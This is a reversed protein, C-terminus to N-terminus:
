IKNVTKAGVVLVFGFGQVHTRNTTNNRWYGIAFRLKTAVLVFNFFLSRPPEYKISQAKTGVVLVFVLVKSTWGIAPVTAGIAFRLVKGM